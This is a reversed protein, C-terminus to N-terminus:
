HQTLKGFTLAVLLLVAGLVIPLLDPLQALPLLKFNSAMAQPIFEILGSVAHVLQILPRAAFAAGIVFAVPLALRQVWIQRRVRAMVRDSFGDDAIPSSKFLAELKRDERDKIREAM